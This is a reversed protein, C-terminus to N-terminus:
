KKGWRQWAAERSKGTALAVRDWSWRTAVGNAAVKVSEEYVQQFELLAALHTEDGEAARRGAARIFRAAAAMYEPMEVDRKPRKARRTRREAKLIERAEDLTFLVKVPPQADLYERMQTLSRYDSANLDAALGRGHNSRFDSPQKGYASQTDSMPCTAIQRNHSNLTINM